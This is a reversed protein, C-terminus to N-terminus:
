FGMEENILVMVPGMDISEMLFGEENTEIISGEVGYMENVNEEVVNEEVVNEKVVNEEIVNEEVATEAAVSVIVLLAAILIAIVKKM